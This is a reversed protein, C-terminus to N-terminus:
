HIPLVLRKALDLYAVDYVALDHKRALSALSLNELWSRSELRIPLSTILYLDIRKRYQWLPM